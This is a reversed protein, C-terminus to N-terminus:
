VVVKKSNFEIILPPHIKKILSTPFGNQLIRINRTYHIRHRPDKPMALDSLMAEKKEQNTQGRHLNVFEEEKNILIAESYHLIKGGRKRKRDYSIVKVSFPKGTEMEALLEKISIVDM